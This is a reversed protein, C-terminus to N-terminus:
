CKDASTAVMFADSWDSIPEYFANTLRVFVFLRDDEKEFVEAIRGLDMRILTSDVWEVEHGFHISVGHWLIRFQLHSNGFSGFDEGTITLLRESLNPSELPICKPREPSVSHIISREPSAPAATSGLDVMARLIDRQADSLHEIGAIAERVQEPTTNGLYHGSDRCDVIGPSCHLAQLLQLAEVVADLNPQALEIAASSDLEDGFLSLRYLHLRVHFSWFSPSDVWWGWPTHEELTNIFDVLMQRNTKQLTTRLPEPIRSKPANESVRETPPSYYFIEDPSYPFRLSREEVPLRSYWDLQEEWTRSDEGEMFGLLYKRLRPPTLSAHHASYSPISTEIIHWLEGFKGYERRGLVDWYDEGGLMARDLLEVILNYYPRWPELSNDSASREYNRYDLAFQAVDRRFTYLNMQDCPEPFGDWYEWFAHMSEHMLAGLGSHGIGVYGGFSGAWGPQGRRWEIFIDNNMWDVAEDTLGFVLAADHIQGKVWPDQTGSHAWTHVALSSSVEEGGIPVDRRNAPRTIVGDLNRAVVEIDYTSGRKLDDFIRCRSTSWDSMSVHPDGRRTLTVRYETYDPNFEDAIPQQLGKWHTAM